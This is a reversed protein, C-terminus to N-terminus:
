EKISRIVIPVKERWSDDLTSFANNCKCPCYIVRNYQKLHEVGCKEVGM